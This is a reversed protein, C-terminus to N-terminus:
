RESTAAVLTGQSTIVRWGGERRLFVDTFRLTVSAAEGRYSGAARTRGTVVAVDGIVRVRLEDVTMSFIRRDTSSFTEELVDARTLIRGSPDTVTWDPALLGEIVRRDGGVWARALRHELDVLVSTHDSLVDMEERDSAPGLAV